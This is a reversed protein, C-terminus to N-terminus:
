EYFVPTRALRLGVHLLPKLRTKKKDSCTASIQPVGELQPMWWPCVIKIIGQIYVRSTSALVFLLLHSTESM